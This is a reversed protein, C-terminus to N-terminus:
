IRFVCNMICTSPGRLPPSPLSSADPVDTSFRLLPNYLDWQHAPAQPIQLDYVQGGQKHGDEIKLLKVEDHCCKGSGSDMGCQDCPHSKEQHTFQVSSGVAKGMCYHIKLVLGSTIALYMFAVSIALIKKM